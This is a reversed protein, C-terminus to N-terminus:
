PNPAPTPNVAAATQEVFRRVKMLEEIDGMGKRYPRRLTLTKGSRTVRLVDNDREVVDALAVLMSRVELWELNRAVPHQLLADYTMRNLDTLRTPM